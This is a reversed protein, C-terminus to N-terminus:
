IVIVVYQLFTHTTKKQINHQVDIIFSYIGVFFDRIKIEYEVFNVTLFYLQLIFLENMVYHIM